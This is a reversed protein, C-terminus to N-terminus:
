INLNVLQMILIIHLRIDKKELFVLELQAARIMSVDNGGDGIALTLENSNQKIFNVIKSKQSPSSRCCILSRGDKILEYFIKSIEENDICTNISSGEIILSYKCSIKKNREYIKDPQPYIYKMKFLFCRRKTVQSFENQKEQFYDYAKMYEIRDMNLQKTTKTLFTKNKNKLTNKKNQDNELTHTSHKNLAKGKQYLEENEQINSLEELYDDANEEFQKLYAIIESPNASNESDESKKDLNIQVNNAINNGQIINLNLQNNYLDLNTTQLNYQNIQNNIKLICDKNNNMMQETAQYVNMNNQILTDNRKQNLQM